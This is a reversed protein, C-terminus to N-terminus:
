LDINYRPQYRKILNNELILAEVESGTVIFDISAISKVLAQTKKDHLTRNFYSSVRKKLDKAKGVYIINGDSDKYQYSGPENPILSLDPM